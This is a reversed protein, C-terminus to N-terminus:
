HCQMIAWSALFNKTKIDQRRSWFYIRGVDGWMWGLREDSDFQMLLRWDAAGNELLTRRPNKYGSPDGCYLGNTVLQCELQMANQVEQPHGACRHVAYKEAPTASFQDLLRGYEDNSWKSVRNGNLFISTPLTWEPEFELRRSVFKADEPLDPPFAISVCDNSEPFYLVCCHGRDAPDFGWSNQSSDYFFALMGDKPWEELAVVSQLERLCVQGLFMLPVPRASLQGRMEAIRDRLGTARPNARFREEYRAIRAELFGKRDWRPWELGSPLFPLGGFHSITSGDSDGDLDDRISIRVSPFLQETILDAQPAM